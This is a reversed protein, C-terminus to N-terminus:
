KKYVPIEFTISYSSLMNYIENMKSTQKYAWGIDTAYQHSAVNGVVNWRMKYLTDQGVNIYSDGIFSAGGIIASEPTFWNEQYAKIAGLTLPNSDYAGIGFMNYIKKINTAQNKDFNTVKIVEWKRTDTKYEVTYTGNPQFSVWKNAGLSGVQIQGSALDSTGNGSELLAHAVLYVENISNNKAGQIFSDAKNAFIGKNNLIANMENINVNAVESLKLFQLKDKFTGTFNNPNIYYKLDALDPIVWGTTNKIHYWIYGDSGKTSDYISVTENSVSGGIAFETGPGRRLNWTEDKIIGKGDKISNSVFADSRVWLPYRKDTQPTAKMQINAMQDLTIDYNVYTNKISKSPNLKVSLEAVGTGEFYKVLVHHKGSSLNITKSWTGKSRNGWEDLVLKNDIYVRVGDNATVDLQYNGSNTEIYRQYLASFNDNPILESPSGGQWNFNLEPIQPQYGLLVPSGTFDKNPFALGYWRDDRMLDDIEFRLQALGTLEKYKILIRHSGEKLYIPQGFFQLGQDNDWEDIVLAGDVFVQVGDNAWVRLNYAGEKVNIERQFLTSFNDNPINSSPSGRGWDYNLNPIQPQYGLLATEGTLDPNSFALGYWRNDRTLDDIDFKLQSVGVLEKYKILIKHTGKKLYVPKGFFKLGQNNDWEDIVLKGDVYVQVGDNAWVRLNYAGEEVNIERQFLSSFNDKPINSAPSGWGWDFDLQPIQPQYGLLATNGTLNSNSFAMGYWRDNRLLNDIEFRLEALGVLEKYHIEVKHSGSALYTPKAFFKLGQDNNWENILLKGDVYIRVGDNAYVRFNYIGEDLTFTKTFKASFNDSPIGSIPSNRQWNFDVSDYTSKVEKGTLNGNSYFTANWKSSDASAEINNTSFIIISLLVLLGYKIINNLVLRLM